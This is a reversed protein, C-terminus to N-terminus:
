RRIAASTGRDTHWFYNASREGQGSSAFIRPSSMEALTQVETETGIAITVTHGDLFRLSIQPWTTGAPTDFHYPKRSAERTMEPGAQQGCELVTKYKEPFAPIIGCWQPLDQRLVQASYAALGNSLVNEVEKAHKRHMRAINEAVQDATLPAVHRFLRSMEPFMPTLQYENKARMAQAIRIFSELMTIDINSNQNETERDGTLLDFKYMEQPDRDTYKSALTAFRRSICQSYKGCHTFM